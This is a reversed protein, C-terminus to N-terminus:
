ACSNRCKWFITKFEVVESTEKEMDNNVREKNKSFECYFIYIGFFNNLDEKRLFFVCFLSFNSFVCFFMESSKQSFFVKLDRSVYLSKLTPLHLYFPFSFLKSTSFFFINELTHKTRWSFNFRTHQFICSSIMNRHKNILTASSIRSYVYDELIQKATAVKKKIGRICKWMDFCKLM